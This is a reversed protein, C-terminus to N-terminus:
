ASVEGGVDAVGQLAAAVAMATPEDAYKGIHWGFGNTFRTVEWVDVTEIDIPDTSRVIAATTPKVLYRIRPEPM